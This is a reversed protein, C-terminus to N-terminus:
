AVVIKGEQVGLSVQTVTVQHNEIMKEALPDEIERQIYRRMNRAGYKESYSEEAIKELVASTYRLAIGREGLAEGM